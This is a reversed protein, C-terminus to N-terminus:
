TRTGAGYSPVLDVIHEAEARQTDVATGSLVIMPQDLHLKDLGAILNIRHVSSRLVGAGAMATSKTRKEAIVISQIAFRAPTPRPPMENLKGM